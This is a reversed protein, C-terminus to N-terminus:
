LHITGDTAINTSSPAAAGGAVYKGWASCSHTCATKAPCASNRGTANHHRRGPRGSQADPTRTRQPSATSCLRGERTVRCAPLLAISQIIM